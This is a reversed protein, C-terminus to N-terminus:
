FGGLLVPLAQPACALLPSEQECLRKPGAVSQGLLHSGGLGARHDELLEGHTKM